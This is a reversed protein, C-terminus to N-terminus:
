PRGPIRGDAGRADVLAGLIGNVFSGSRATSYTKALEVAEDIVVAPPTDTHVLEYVALRLVCRDVPPMRDIRWGRSVGAILENLEARHATVGDVLRKARASLGSRDPGTGVAEAAYLAELAAVRVEKSV